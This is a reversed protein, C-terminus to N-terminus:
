IYNMCLYCNFSVEHVYTIDGTDAPETLFFLKDFCWLRPQYEVAEGSDRSAQIKNLEVRFQSRLVHIKRRIKDITMGRDHPLLGDRIQLLALAKLERRKYGYSNANWLCPARRYLEILREAAERTWDSHSVM